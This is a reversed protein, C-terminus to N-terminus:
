GVVEIMDPLYRALRQDGTLLAEASARMGTALVLADPLRLSLDNARLLGAFTGVQQDVPVIRDISAARFAELATRGDDGRRAAGVTLEAWSVASIVFSAGAYEWKEVAERAQEHLADTRSMLAIVVSTDLVVAQV